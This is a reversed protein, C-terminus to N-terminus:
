TASSGDHATSRPLTVFLKQAMGSGLAIRQGDCALVFGGGRKQMVMATAGDRLGREMLKRNLEKGGHVGAVVITEGTRALALPFAAEATRETNM